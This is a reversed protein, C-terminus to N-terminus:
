KALENSGSIEIIRELNMHPTGASFILPVTHEVGDSLVVLESAGYISRRLWFHASDFNLPKRFYPSSLISGSISLLAGRHRLIKAFALISIPAAVLAALAAIPWRHASRSGSALFESISGATWFPEIWVLGIALWVVGYLGWFKM